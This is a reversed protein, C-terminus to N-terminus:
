TLLFAVHIIPRPRLRKALVLTLELNPPKHVTGDGPTSWLKSDVCPPVGHPVWPLFDVPQSSPADGFPPMAKSLRLGISADGSLPMAPSLRRWSLSTALLSRAEVTWFLLLSFLFTAELGYTRAGTPSIRVRSTDM